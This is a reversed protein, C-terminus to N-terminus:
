PASARCPRPRQPDTRTGCFQGPGAESDADGTFFAGSPDLVLLVELAEADSNRFIGSVTGGDASIVGNLSVQRSGELWVANLASGAVEFEITKVISVSPSGVWINWTGEWTFPFSEPSATATPAPTETPLPTPAPSSTAAAAQTATPAATAAPASSTLTPTADPATQMCGALLGSAFIILITLLPRYRM